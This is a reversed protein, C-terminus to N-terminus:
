NMPGKLAYVGNSNIFSIGSNVDVSIGYNTLVSFM